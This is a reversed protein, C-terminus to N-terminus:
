MVAQTVIVLFHSNGNLRGLFTSPGFHFYLYLYLDRLVRGLFEGVRSM